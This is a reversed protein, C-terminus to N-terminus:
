TRGRRKPTPPIPTGPGPPERKQPETRYFHNYKGDKTVGDYCLVPSLRITLVRENSSMGLRRFEEELGTVDCGLRDTVRRAAAIMVSIEADTPHTSGEAQEPKEMGNSM